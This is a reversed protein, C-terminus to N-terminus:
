VQLDIKALETKRRRIQRLRTDLMVPINQHRREATRREPFEPDTRDNRQQRAQRSEDDAENRTRNQASRPSDNGTANMYGVPETKPRGSTSDARPIVETPIRM